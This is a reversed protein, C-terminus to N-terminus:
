KYISKRHRVDVVRVIIENDEIECIIRYDGTRYRWYERLSGKLAKGHQRPNDAVAITNKLYHLIQKSATVGLKKLKKEIDEDLRITWAM